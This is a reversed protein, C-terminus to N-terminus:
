ERSLTETQMRQQTSGLGPLLLRSCPGTCEPSRKAGQPATQHVRSLVSSKCALNESDFDFQLAHLESIRGAARPIERLLTDTRRVRLGPFEASLPGRPSCAPDKAWGTHPPSPGALAGRMTADGQHPGWAGQSTSLFCGKSSCTWPFRLQGGSAERGAGAGAGACARRPMPSAPSPGSALQAARLLSHSSM